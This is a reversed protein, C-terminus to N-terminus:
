AKKQDNREHEGKDATREEETRGKGGKVAEELVTMSGGVWWSYCGDVLKNSRGKFGGGDAASAQMM